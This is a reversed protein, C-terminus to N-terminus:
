IFIHFLVNHCCIKKVVNSDIQLNLINKAYICGSTPIVSGFCRRQSNCLSYTYLLLLPLQDHLDFPLHEFIIYCQEFMEHNLLTIVNHIRQIFNHYQLIIMKIAINFILDM